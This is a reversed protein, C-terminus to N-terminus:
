CSFNKQLAPYHIQDWDSWGVDGERADQTKLIKSLRKRGTTFFCGFGPVPVTHPRLTACGIMIEAKNQKKTGKKYARKQGVEGLLCMPQGEFWVLESWCVFKVLLEVSRCNLFDPFEPFEPFAVPMLCDSGDNQQACRAQHPFAACNCQPPPPTATSTSFLCTFETKPHQNTKIQWFGASGQEEGGGVCM